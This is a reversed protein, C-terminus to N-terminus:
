SPVGAGAPASDAEREGARVQPVEPLEVPAPTRTRAPLGAAPMVVNFCTGRGVESSVQVVGGHRDVLRRVLSLGLGTGRAGPKTTFLPMFARNKTEESMGIGNDEIRLTVQDGAAALAVKVAPQYGPEENSSRREECADAANVLLNVLIQSLEVSSGAVQANVDLDLSVRPLRAGLFRVVTRVIEALAVPEGRSGGDDARAMGKVQKIIDDARYLGEWTECLVSPLDDLMEGVEPHSAELEALLPTAETLYAVLSGVNARAVALPNAVEHAIGAAIEGLTTLREAAHLRRETEDAVARAEVGGLTESILRAVSSAVELDRATFIAGPRTRAINVVGRVRQGGGPSAIPVCMSASIEARPGTVGQATRLTIRPEGTRMVDQAIGAPRTGAPPAGSLGHQAVLLLAGSDDALQVSVREARFLGAIEAVAVDLFSQDSALAAVSSLRCMARCMARVLEPSGTRNQDRAMRCVARLEDRSPRAAGVYAVGAEYAACRTADDVEDGALVVSVQPAREWVLAAVVLADVGDAHILCVDIEPALRQLEGLDSSLGRLSDPGLLTRLHEAWAGRADGLAFVAPEAHSM